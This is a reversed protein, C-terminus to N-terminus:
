NYGCIAIYNKNMLAKVEPWKGKKNGRSCIPIRCKTSSVNGYHPPLTQEWIPTIGYRQTQAASGTVGANKAAVSPTLCVPEDQARAQLHHGLLKCILKTIEM